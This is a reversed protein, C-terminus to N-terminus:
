TGPGHPRGDRARCSSGRGSRRASPRSPLASDTGRRSPRLMTITSAGSLRALCRRRGLGCSRRTSRRAARPGPPLPLRVAGAAVPVVPRQRSTSTVAPGRGAGLPRRRVTAPSSVSVRGALRAFSPIVIGFIFVSLPARLAILTSRSRCSRRGSPTGDCGRSSSDDARLAPQLALGVEGAGSLRSTDAPQATGVSRTPRGLRVWPTRRGAPDRTRRRGGVM